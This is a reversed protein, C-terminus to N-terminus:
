QCKTTHASILQGIYAAPANQRRQRDRSMAVAAPIGAREGSAASLAPRDIAQM